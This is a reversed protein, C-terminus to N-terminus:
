LGTTEKDSAGDMYAAVTSSLPCPAPGSDENEVAVSDADAILSLQQAGLPDLKESVEDPDNPRQQPSARSEGREGAAVPDQKIVLGAEVTYPGPEQQAQRALLNSGGLGANQRPAPRRRLQASPSLHISDLCPMAQM